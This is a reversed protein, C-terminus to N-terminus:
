NGTGGSDDFTGERLRDIIFMMKDLQVKDMSMTDVISTTNKDVDGDLSIQATYFVNDKIWYASNDMIIVKISNKEEHIQSQTKINKKINKYGLNSTILFNSIVQHRESQRIGIRKKINKKFVFL